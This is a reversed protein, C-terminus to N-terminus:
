EADTRCLSIASGNRCTSLVCPGADSGCDAESTCSFSTGPKVLPFFQLGVLLDSDRTEVLFARIARQIAAPALQAGRGHPFAPQASSTRLRVSM